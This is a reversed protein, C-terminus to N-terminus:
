YTGMGRRSSVSQGRLDIVRIESWIGWPFKLPAEGGSMRCGMDQAGGSASLANLLM